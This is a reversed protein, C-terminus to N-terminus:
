ADCIGSPPQWWVGVQHVIGLRPAGHTKLNGGCHRAHEPRALVPPLFREAGSNHMLNLVDGLYISTGTEQLAHNRIALVLDSPM